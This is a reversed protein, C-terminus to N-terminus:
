FRKEPIEEAMLFSIKNHDMLIHRHLWKHIPRNYMRHVMNLQDSESDLFQVRIMHKQSESHSSCHYSFNTNYDM